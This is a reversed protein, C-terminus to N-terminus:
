ATGGASRLREEVGHHGKRRAWALPTAWPAGVHNPDAGRSPLLDVAADRGWHAANGLPTSAYEDDLIDISAGHDLLVALKADEGTFAFDHLLTLGRWSRHNPNAGRKLPGELGEIKKFYYRAGWKTSDPVRAGHRM